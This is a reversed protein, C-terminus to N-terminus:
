STHEAYPMHPTMAASVAFAYNRIHALTIDQNGNIASEIIGDLICLETGMADRLWKARTLPFACSGIMFEADTIDCQHRAVEQHENAGDFDGASRLARAHSLHVASFEYASGVCAALAMLAMNNVSM